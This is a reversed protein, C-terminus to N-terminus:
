SIVNRFYNMNKLSYIFQIIVGSDVISWHQYQIILKIELYFRFDHEIWVRCNQLTAYHCLLTFIFEKYATTNKKIWFPIFRFKQKIKWVLSVSCQFRMWLNKVTYISHQFNVTLINHLKKVNVAWYIMM